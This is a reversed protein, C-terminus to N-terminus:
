ITINKNAYMKEVSPPRNNNNLWGVPNDRDPLLILIKEHSNAYDTIWSITTTTNDSSFQAKGKSGFAVLDMKDRVLPRDPEGVELFINKEM